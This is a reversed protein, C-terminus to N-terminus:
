RGPLNEIDELAGPVGGAPGYFVSGGFTTLYLMGPHLPDFVPRHGWKFSYGALRYWHAGRDDTRFAASDFTNIVVTSPNAPDVAAAYVHAEEDFVREWTAGSNETRYLGGGRGVRPTISKDELPWCSLYMRRPDSPDYTLDNPARVGAPLNIRTWTAAGDTSRYLAGDVVAGGSLGLAVVLLLTGDPLRTIRWANRNTGLGNSALSWGAGGNTSKYVGRGFGCVYLTRAQSSSAPDLLVHTCVTNSPLGSNSATWTRGGNTSLAVGGPYEGRELMGSRMMKPRPLDHCLSWVSWVRDKVSPDFELWYCTNVWDQRIGSISHAWSRGGNRSHFLGIDTYTLFVHLSDFPDFHVGYTTTVDLGRSTYTGDPQDNSYVPDWTAGGDLTRITRGSDTAYCIDPNAPSVGLDWPYAPWSPDYSRIMWSDTHNNSLIRFQDAQYVWTWTDGGNVTKFTGFRSSSGSNACSLYAVEPRSECAAIAIYSPDSAGPWDNLLGTNVARWTLGGDNSRYVGGAVTSGSRRLATLVYIVAGSPGKGAAVDLVPSDPLVLATRGGTRSSIRVLGTETVVLVEEPRNWWSGPFLARFTRGRVQGLDRWSAGRDASFMILTSDGNPQPPSVLSLESTPPLAIFLRSGNSPDVLIKGVPRGPKGDTTQFSHDAHDGLMRESIVKSPDPYILRWRTGGDESRYLGTSGAYVTSPAAPDFAYDNIVYRLNFMKWSVGGDATVYGGTMDCRVLVRNPDSPSITPGYMAGGGGPGLVKWSAVVQEVPERKGSAIASILALVDGLGFRGDRDYDARPDAPDSRGLLLLALVDAAGVRGDGNIDERFVPGSPSARLEGSSDAILLFVSLCVTTCVARVSNRRM